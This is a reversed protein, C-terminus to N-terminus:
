QKRADIMEERNVVVTHAGLQLHSDGFAHFVRLRSSNFIPAGDLSRLTFLAPADFTRGNFSAAYFAIFQKSEVIFGKPPLMVAGCYRTQCTYNESGYNVTIDFPDNGQSEYHASQVKQDPTVFAYRTLRQAATLENLPSLIEHTNKLFRDFPHLGEAWGNEAHHFPEHLRAAQVVIEAPAFHVGDSALTIRGLKVRNLNDQESSLNARGLGQPDYLGIFVDFPGNRGEPVNITHPGDSVSGSWDALKQAPVHDDQFAIANAGDAFHVFVRWDKAPAREVKWRYTLKFQRPGVSEFQPALVSMRIQADTSEAQKWYLHTPVNHYNLPRAILIHQLVYDAVHTYDYGYKGYMAITDRCVMEFLPIVIGGTDKQLNADHYAHGSVGTLGEFFDAHPIAWERGCESGFVGFQKRAEDSLAQKWRMDDARTLPHAPDACEQLGAAFTTDIFYANADCLKKVAPLNQPRQALELAMKSCTLYARGGAWRGGIALKGDPRKMIYREDWSPSDRYIDQYNDHLCFLYGLAKVRRACDAFAADGGCEPATPLIDPHQNDYGRHTWGGITFLVRDIKLDNKIHEAVAAAENFTWSVHLQEEKDSAENMRRSLCSWLKVNSAGFLKQREPNQAIKESWPVLWGKRQAESRYVDAIEAAGGRGCPTLRIVGPGRSFDFSTSLIQSVGGDPPDIKESRVEPVIDPSDWSALLASGASVYGLMAMHCGEYEYTGFRRTFFHANDAPILLGERVPVLLAGADKNSIWLARHFLKVSRTKIAGETQYSALLSNGDPSLAFDVRVVFDPTNASPHFAARILQPTQELECQALPLRVTKGNQDLAVEGFGKADRASRWTVKSSKDLLEFAGNEAHLTFKIKQSELPAVAEGSRARHAVCLLVFLACNLILKPRSSM